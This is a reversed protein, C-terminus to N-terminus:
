KVLVAKSFDCRISGYGMSGSNIWYGHNGVVEIHGRKLQGFHDFEILDGVCLLTDYGIQTETNNQQKIEKKM